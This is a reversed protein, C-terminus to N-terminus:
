LSQLLEAPPKEIKDIRLKQPTTEGAAEVTDGVKKNLLTQALAAPYSIIGRAPDGDWAGLIHYTQSRNAGLDTVTVSTGINVVDTKADAFDTPQARSLLIELEARRRMLLKQMDKAAKFEFNERLDGYSRALGIEKSNQPIKKQIIDDLEARRKNYSGWSVILPQEKVTKTVLFEQVFPHEKVVRALLSRRDLEEFASTSLILRAIKRVTETDAEVLLDPVLEEEGFLVDRLKKSVSKNPASEISEIVAFLLAPTQLGDLWPYAKRSAPTSINRCIWCLLETGATQNHVWQEISDAKQTLVDPIEDLSKTSLRNLERSLRDPDTTKLVALARRQASANLEDLVASLNPTASLLGALLAATDETPSKQHERLQELIVAAEIREVHRTTPTKQLTELLTDQVEQILLEANELEDVLKLFQRAVEIQQTLGKAEHFAELLEDQQSVPATRLVVPDTKRAPVDFHPDKKLLKRTNEWWKKWQDAPIVSGSLLGEIREVTAARHQSLLVLRLLTVPDEAALQKLGDLDTLKRVEIHDNGVPALSDAAYALQMSHSPNHAFAVVIQGLTTDFSKVRGVGWSKHQGYTGVQLALLTEIRIIAIPLPTRNQDIESVSLITKLRSDSEHLQSFAKVIEARLQKDTPKAEAQLKLAYLWEHHKGATKINEVILSALEAAMDAQGADAFEKVLLLLFEPQDSFQEALELWLAQAGDWDSRSLLDKLQQHHNQTSTM